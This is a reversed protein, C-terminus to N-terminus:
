EFGITKLLQSFRPENLVDDFIPDTYLSALGSDGVIYARELTSLAKLKDGWAAFVQAQQYVGSDGFDRILQDFAVQARDARGLKKDTIALGTLGFLKNPELAFTVRAEELRNSHYLASAKLSNTVSAQPNMDLARQYAALAQPYDRAMAAIQGACRFVTPNLPDREIAKAITAAAEAKRGTRACFMAFGTLVDGDGSGYQLSKDFASKAARADLGNTFLVFGLASHADAFTPALEVAKQAAALALRHNSQIQSSNGSQSAIVSLARARGAYAAAYNGDRAIASDFAALSQQDTQASLGAEFLARGRLFNEYAVVNLTGGVAMKKTTGAKVPPAKQIPIQAVLAAVVAQAIESQVAFIDDLPRDFTQTWVSIGSKGDIMETNVRARGNEKRVNGDLLFAVGLQRAMSQATTSRVKFVASSTQAAVRLLPNAALEARVEASLGDAFYSQAEDGSINIFPLVAVSNNGQAAGSAGMGIDSLKWIAAGGLGVAIASGVVILNRRNLDPKPPPSVLATPPTPDQNAVQNKEILTKVDALLAIWRPDSRNGKWGFLEASQTLEFMIPRECPEIMCPVLKENRFAQLAEARVWRSVVSKVSWLVVVAKAIRLAAETVEDYAEGARLTTDWWVKYGQSEFAVAFRKAVAQDERNYSLFIDTM